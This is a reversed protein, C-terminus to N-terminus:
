CAPVELLGPLGLRGEVRAAVGFANLLEVVSLLHRTVEGTAVRGGGRALALPVALQDALWPDVAASAEEEVHRLIRRAMRDGLREPRLGKEGLAAFAARGWEHVAELMVFSGPSAAPLADIVEWESELRRAEWLRARAADALRRAVDGKLHAALAVGRISVLPGREVLTLSGPRSFDQVRARLEGGGKPYFGARVLTAELRLGLRAVVTAWHREVYPFAPSMPVHTGGTVSVSSPAGATALVPTVCQLVLSAAGATEIEFRFDGAAVPGPEFRMDPSGEFAGSVKAGCALAVARVAALHQPRLGPRARRARINRIEFGQGTAASLTLAARLIQGGGEGQAGDLPLLAGM